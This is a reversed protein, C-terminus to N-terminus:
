DAPHFFSLVAARLKGSESAPLQKFFELPLSAARAAVFEVFELNSEPLIASIPDDTGGTVKTYQKSLEVVDNCTWNNMERLDLNTYEKGEFKYPKRLKLLLPDKADEVSIVYNEKESM